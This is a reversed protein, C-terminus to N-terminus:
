FRRGTLEGAGGGRRVWSKHDRHARFVRLTGQMALVTLDILNKKSLGLTLLDKVSEPEWVGTMSVTISGFRHPLSSPLQDRVGPIDYKRIKDRRALALDRSPGCVEADLVWVRTPTTIVLDPRRAPAAPRRFTREREVQMGKARLLRTVRECIDDHRKIIPRHTHDCVQAIHALTEVANCGHRCFKDYGPRGRALRARTPLANIRLKILNIYERGSLYPTGKVWDNTFPTLHTHKLHAGDVTNHLTRSWYETEHAADEITTDDFVCLASTKALEKRHYDTSLLWQTGIHSSRNLATLRSLRLRPILTRLCPIDLGGHSIHAYLFANPVSNELKLWQLKM